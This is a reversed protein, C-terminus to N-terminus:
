LKAVNQSFSIDKLEWVTVRVQCDDTADLQDPHTGCSQCIDHRCHGRAGLIALGFFFVDMAHFILSGQRCNRM